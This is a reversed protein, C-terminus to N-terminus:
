FSDLGALDQGAIYLTSRGPLFANVLIITAHHKPFITVATEHISTLGVRHSISHALYHLGPKFRTDPSIM